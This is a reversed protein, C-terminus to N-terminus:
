LATFGACTSAIPVPSVLLSKKRKKKKTKCGNQTPKSLTFMTPPATTLALWGYSVLTMDWTELPAPMLSNMRVLLALIVTTGTTRPSDYYMYRKRIEQRWRTYSMGLGVSSIKWYRWRMPRLSCGSFSRVLKITLLNLFQVGLGAQPEAVEDYLKWKTVSM